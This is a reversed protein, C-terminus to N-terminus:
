SALMRKEYTSWISWKRTLRPVSDNPYLARLLKISDRKGYKLQFFDHRGPRPARMELRGSVSLQRALRAAIWELHTRSASSFLVWLREYEYDPYTSVTPRHTFNQISGDGDLLGRVLPILYEDPVSIAGLTLSKRPTLGVSQFWGYLRTDAFETFFAVGGIATTQEKVRNTRGLLRLYIEVLERDKSKFNLKRRTSYLCGDTATLGVIYAM